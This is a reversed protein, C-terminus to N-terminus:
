EDTMGEFGCFVCPDYKFDIESRGTLNSTYVNSTLEKSMDNHESFEVGLGKKPTSRSVSLHKKM